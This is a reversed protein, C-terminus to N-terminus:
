CSLETDLEMRCQPCPCDAVPRKSLSRFTGPSTGALIRVQNIVDLIEPQTLSYYINRGARRMSVLNADRLIMLHQSICAQRIGLVAELHCVCTEQNGIAMLIQIRVPQGILHMLRSIAEELHTEDLENTRM